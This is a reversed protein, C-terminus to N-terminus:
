KRWVNKFPTRGSNRTLYELAAIQICMLILFPWPNVIGLGAFKERGDLFRWPFYWVLLIITFITHNTFVQVEIRESLPIKNNSSKMRMWTFLYIMAFSASSLILAIFLTLPFDKTLHPLLLVEILYGSGILANVGFAIRVVQSLKLDALAKVENEM